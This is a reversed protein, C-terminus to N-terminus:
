KFNTQQCFFTNTKTLFFPNMGIFHAQLTIIQKITAFAEDSLFFRSLFNSSFSYIWVFVLGTKLVVVGKNLCTM